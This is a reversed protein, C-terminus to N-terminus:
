RSVRGEMCLGRRNRRPSQQQYRAARGHWQWLLNGTRLDIITGSDTEIYRRTHGYAFLMLILVSGLVASRAGQQVNETWVLITLLNSRKSM